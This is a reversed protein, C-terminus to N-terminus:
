NRPSALGSPRFALICFGDNMGKDSLACPREASTIYTIEVEFERGTYGRTPDFEKMRLFDGVRYDRDTSRRLDFTKRGDLNAEFFEPWSKVEHIVPSRANAEGLKENQTSSKPTAGNEFM